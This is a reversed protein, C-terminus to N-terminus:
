SVLADDGDEIGAQARPGVPAPKELGKRRRRDDRLERGHGTEEACLLTCSSSVKPQTTALFFFLRTGGGGRVLWPGCCLPVPGCRRTSDPPGRRKFRQNTASPTAIMATAAIMPMTSATRPPLAWALPTSPRHARWVKGGIPRWCM